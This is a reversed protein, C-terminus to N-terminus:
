SRADKAAQSRRVATVVLLAILLLFAIILGPLPLVLIIPWIGTTIDAETARAVLSMVIGIISLVIAAGFMYALIRQLRSPPPAAQQETKAM